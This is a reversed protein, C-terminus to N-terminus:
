ILSTPGTKVILELLELYEKDGNGFELEGMGELWQQITISEDFNVVNWQKGQFEIIITHDDDLNKYIELAEEYHEPKQSRDYEIEVADCIWELIDRHYTLSFPHTHYGIIEITGDKKTRHKMEGLPYTSVCIYDPNENSRFMIFLQREEAGFTIRPLRKCTQILINDEKVRKILDLKYQEM